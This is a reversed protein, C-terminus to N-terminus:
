QFTIIFHLWTTWFIYPFCVATSELRDVQVQVYVGIYVRQM